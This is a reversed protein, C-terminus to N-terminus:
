SGEVRTRAFQGLEDLSQRAEPVFPSFLQFVHPLNDWIRVQAEVGASRAAAALRLSDDLLVEQRGVHIMMPPMGSFSGLLPSARPSAPDAGQLYADVVHPLLNAPIYPDRQANTLISEGSLTLDTWPAMAILAAPLTQGDDRLAMLTSLMLNGGASDGAAVIRKVPPGSVRLWDWAARVDDLAAPFPHEPARRYDVAFVAAGSAASLLSSVRHYLALSGIMFAGGCVVFIVRETSAGPALIWEARMGAGTVPVI